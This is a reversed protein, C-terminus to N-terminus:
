VSENADTLDVDIATCFVALFRVIKNMGRFLHKNEYVNVQHQYELIVRM